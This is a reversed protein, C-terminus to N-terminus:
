HEGVAFDADLNASQRSFAREARKATLADPNDYRSPPWDVAQLGDEGREQLPLGEPDVAVRGWYAALKVKVHRRAEPQLQAVRRPPEALLEDSVLGPRFLCAVSEEELVGPLRPLYMYPRVTDRSRLLTASDGVAGAQEAVVALPLVPVLM